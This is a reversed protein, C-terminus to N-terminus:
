VRFLKVQKKDLGMRKMFRDIRRLDDPSYWSIYWEMDPTKGHNKIIERFYPDDVESLSHGIVVVQKISSLSAFYSQNRVLVETTKKASEEYYDEILEVTHNIADYRMQSKWNGKSDDKLFYALYTPNDNNYYRGRRGKRRPQFKERDKNSQHWERFVEETDHGHGLVLKCKKDRRDGHIYLIREMPIGYLTELFETYNFNIYRADPKLFGQLPRGEGSPKLKNIWKRFYDPLEQTLLYVPTSVNETAGFFDAASFEDDDEELVGMVDLVEDLSDMMKERDLYALSDEFNGWIDDKKIFNELTFRLPNRKSISDRFRDYSSPVGHAMDFGNGIVYLTTDPSDLPIDQREVKQFLYEKDTQYM